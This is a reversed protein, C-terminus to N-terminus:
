LDFNGLGFQNDRGYITTVETNGREPIPDGDRLKALVSVKSILM